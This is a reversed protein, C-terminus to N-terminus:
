LFILIVVAHLTAILFTVMAIKKHYKFGKKTIGIFLTICLSIYTLIGLYIYVELGLFSYTIISVILDYM